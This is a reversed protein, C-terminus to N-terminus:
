HYLEVADEFLFFKSPIRLKKKNLITKRGLEFKKGFNLKAEAGSGGAFKSSIQTGFCFFKGKM